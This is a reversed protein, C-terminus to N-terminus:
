QRIAKIWKRLNGPYKDYFDCPSASRHLMLRIVEEITWLLLNIKLQSELPHKDCVHEVNLINSGEVLIAQHIIEPFSDASCCIFLPSNDMKCHFPYKDPYQKRRRSFYGHVQSLESFLNEDGLDYEKLKEAEVTCSSHKWFLERKQHPTLAAADAPPLKAVFPQFKTKWHMIKQESPILVEADAPHVVVEQNSVDQNCSAEEVNPAVVALDQNPVDQHPAHVSPADYM